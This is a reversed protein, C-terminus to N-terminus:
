KTKPTYKIGLEKCIQSSVDAGLYQKYEKGAKSVKKIYCAGSKGVYIPYEVGKSDKWTFKTKTESSTKTSVITFTNGTRTVNQANCYNCICLMM